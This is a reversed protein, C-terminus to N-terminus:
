PHRRMFDCLANALEAEVHAWASFPLLPVDEDSIPLQYLESGPIRQHAAIGNVSAHTNDNGPVVLTPVRIGAMAEDTMGLVPKRPGRLFIDLWHSMVRIYEAPDMAMLRAENAPNAAIREQYQETACVAKMGGAKAADIFQGYYNKPLRGAAFDGGTIRMLLLAKVRQPHRLYFLMSLRAGSSTGGIYAQTAGVHDLLVALDDAWIEEEGDEGAILVDSAGTNRRDHLLVQFGQAAIKHAFEIFEQFGRRGGTVLAVWPGSEGYVRYHLNVGRILANPM